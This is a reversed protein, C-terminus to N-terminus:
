FDIIIIHRGCGEKMDKHHSHYNEKLFRLLRGGYLHIFLNMGGWM